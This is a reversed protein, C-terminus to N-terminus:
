GELPELVDDETLSDYVHEPLPQPRNRRALKVESHAGCGHDFSVVRGDDNANGNACVGFMESLSGAMRVLFACSTCQEPASKALPAEPGGPGDYWREAALDIGERSLTRTRGLGLDQAVRRVQARDDADLPDDGVLYTPVLRADEDEVPLLDGPSLDGPQIREKYPVWAPAIIAEDGPLLVVENVTPQKSRKARTLTVSWHWGPYGPRECAFHHTVVREDEARAALHAGVDAPDAVEHLVERAFDFAQALASDIRSDVRPSPAMVRAMM